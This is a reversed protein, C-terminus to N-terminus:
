VTQHARRRMLWGLVLAAFAFSAPGAGVTPGPVTSASTGDFISIEAINSVYRGGAVDEPVVLRAFGDTGTPGLQGDTDAYAVLVDNNGFM